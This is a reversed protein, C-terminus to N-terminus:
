KALDKFYDVIMQGQLQGGQIADFGVYYIYKFRADQMNVTDVVNKDDTGQRNWFIVPVDSPNAESAEVKKAIKDLYDKTATTKVMNLVYADYGEAGDLASLNSTDDTAVSSKVTTVDFNFLPAYHKFLPEMSSTLFTDTASYYSHWIKKKETTGKKIGKEALTTIDSTMFSDVNEKTVAVNNVLVAKSEATYGVESNIKGYSNEEKFGSKLMDEPSVGDLANRAIMYIAAAQAPANQNVTGSM